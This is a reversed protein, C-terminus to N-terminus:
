SGASPEQVWVQKEHSGYGSSGGKKLLKGESVISSGDLDKVNHALGRRGGHKHSDNDLSHYGCVVTPSFGVIPFSSVLLLFWCIESEQGKFDLGLNRGMQLTAQAEQIADYGSPTRQLDPTLNSPTAATSRIRCGKLTGLNPKAGTHGIRRTLGNFKGLFLPNLVGNSRSGRSSKRKGKKIRTSISGSISPSLHVGKKSQSGLGSVEGVKKVLHLGVDASGIPHHSSTAIVHPQPGSLDSGLAVELNIGPRAKLTESLSKMFGPTQIQDDVTPDIVSNQADHNGELWQQRSEVTHGVVGKPVASNFWQRQQLSEMPLSSEVVCVGADNSNGVCDKSEEVVSANSWSGAAALEDSGKLRTALDGKAVNSVGAVEDAKDDDGEELSNIAIPQLVGNVKSCVDKDAKTTNTGNCSTSAEETILEELVVVMISKQLVM